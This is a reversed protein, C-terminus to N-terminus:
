RHVIEVIEERRLGVARKGVSGDEKMLMITNDNAKEITEIQKRKTAKGRTRGSTARQQRRRGEGREQRRDGTQRSESGANGREGLCHCSVASVAFLCPPQSAAPIGEWTDHSEDRYDGKMILPSQWATM